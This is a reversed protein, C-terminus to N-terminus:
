VKALPKLNVQIIRNIEALIEENDDSEIIYFEGDYTMEKHEYRPDYYHEMLMQIISHYDKSKFSSKVNEIIQKNSIRKYLQNLIADLKESYGENTSLDKVYENYIREVRNNISRKILIHVGNKISNQVYVPTSVRGIRSSEAELICFDSPYISTLQQYLISDFMKQSNGEGMGFSGFISGKHNAAKELDVIPIEQSKLHQLIETKGVGTKGHLIFSNRPFLISSKELIYKRYGRYGDVLRYINLGALNAFFSISKSRMGGRWCYVVPILGSESIKKISSLINPIKPSVLEMAKWRAVNEGQQKYLTGVEIREENSFIPVNIAGPICSESFECPSRLDIFQLNPLFEVQEFSCENDSTDIPLRFFSEM